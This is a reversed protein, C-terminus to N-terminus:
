VLSFIVTPSNDGQRNDVKSIRTYGGLRDKYRKGLDNFLKDMLKVSNGKGDSSFTNKRNDLYRLSLRRSHLDGRKAWNIVKAVIKTLMSSAFKNVVIREYMIVEALLNNRTHKRWDSNRKPKIIYSM